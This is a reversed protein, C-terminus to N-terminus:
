FPKEEFKQGDYALTLSRRIFEKKEMDSKLDALSRASSNRTIERIMAMVARNLEMSRRQQEEDRDEKVAPIGFQQRLLSVALEPTEAEAPEAQATQEQATQEQATESETRALASASTQEQATGRETRASASASTQTQAQEQTQEQATHAPEPASDEAGCEAKVAEAEARAQEELKNAARQMREIAVGMTADQELRNQGPGRETRASASASARGVALLLEAAEEPTLAFQARIEGRLEM